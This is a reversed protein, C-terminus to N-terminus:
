YFSVPRASSSTDTPTVPPPNGAPNYNPLNPRSDMVDRPMARARKVEAAPAAYGPPRVQNLDSPFEDQEPYPDFIQARDRQFAAPGPHLIDPWAFKPGCGCLHLAILVLGLRWHSKSMVPKRAFHISHMAATGAEDFSAVSTVAQATYSHRRKNFPTSLFLPRSQLSLSALAFAPHQRTTASETLATSAIILRAECQQRALLPV